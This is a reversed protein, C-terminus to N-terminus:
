LIKVVAFLVIEFLIMQLFTIAMAINEKDKDYTISLPKYIDYLKSQM